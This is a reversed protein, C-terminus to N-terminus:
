KNDYTEVLKYPKIKELVESLKDINFKNANDNSPSCVIFYDDWYTITLIRNMHTYIEKKNPELKKLQTLIQLDTKM